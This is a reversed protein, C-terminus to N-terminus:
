EERIVLSKLPILVVLIDQIAVSWHGIGSSSTEGDNSKDKDTEM